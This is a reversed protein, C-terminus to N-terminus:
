PSEQTPSLFDQAAPDPPMEIAEATEEEAVFRNRFAELSVPIFEALGYDIRYITPDGVARAIIGDPGQFAGIHIEALETPAAPEGEADEADGDDPAAGFVSVITNPPALGLGRLEDDGVADALIDEARLRSLESVLQTIQEPEMAEPSSSWGAAGHTATIAVPDGREPQFFLDVRKADGIAFRALQKFRYAILERPLDDLRDAAITYFSPHAARVLRAGDRLAGITLRLPAAPAEGEGEPTLVIEFAPADLGAEADGLPEDVFGEGRLYSLDALLEDVTEDDARGEIPAALRWRVSREADDGAVRELAVGGDPWRAEIRQISATDFDLIRKDRLDDLARDFSQVKYTQVTYVADGDGTAAYSNAGVPTARGLKLEHVVGVVSFRVVRAAEGLGYEAADVPEEIVEENVLTALNSAMGDVAFRDAPFEVPQNLVWGDERQELRVPTGDSTTLEIWDIDEQAVAPFLRRAQEEAERRVDSGRVEYFYVFAGLILAIVLLLATTRPNM